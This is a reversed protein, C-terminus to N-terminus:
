LTFISHQKDAERGEVMYVKHLPNENKQFSDYIAM